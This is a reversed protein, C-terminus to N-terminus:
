EATLIAYVELVTGWSLAAPVILGLGSGCAVIIGLSALAIAADIGVAAWSLKEGTDETSALLLAAPAAALMICPTYSMLYSLVASLGGDSFWIQAGSAGVMRNMIVGVAVGHAAACGIKITTSKDIGM